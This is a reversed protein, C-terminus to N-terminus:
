KKKNLVRVGNAILQAIVTSINNSMGMNELIVEDGAKWCSLLPTYDTVNQCSLSLYKLKKLNSIPTIDTLSSDAYLSLYVLNTLKSIPTMSTINKLITILTDLNSLNQLPSIDSVQATLRLSKLSSLSSIQAINLKMYRLDLYLLKLKPCGTINTSIVKNTDNQNFDARLSISELNPLNSFSAEYYKVGRIEITSLKPMDTITLKNMPFLDQYINLLLLNPMSDFIMNRPLSYGSLHLYNLNTLANLFSIDQTRINNLDIDKLASLSCLPSFDNLAQCYNLNLVELKKLGCLGSINRLNSCSSLNLYKLNKMEKLFPVSAFTGKSLDLMEVNINQNLLITDSVVYLTESKQIFISDIKVLTDTGFILMEKHVVVLTDKLTNTNDNSSLNNTCHQFLFPVMICLFVLSTLLLKKM